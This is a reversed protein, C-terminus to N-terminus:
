ILQVSSFVLVSVFILLLPVLAGQLMTRLRRERDDSLEMAELLYLIALCYILTIAVFLSGPGIELSARVPLQETGQPGLARLGLPLAQM